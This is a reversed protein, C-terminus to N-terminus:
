NNEGNGKRWKNDGIEGAVQQILCCKCRSHMLVNTLASPQGTGGTFCDLLKGYLTGYLLMQRTCNRSSQHKLIVVLLLSHHGPVQLYKNCCLIKKQLISHLILYLVHKLVRPQTVTESFSSHQAPPTWM